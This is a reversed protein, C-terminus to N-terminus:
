RRPQAIGVVNGQPDAFLGITVGPVQTPEQVITGGLSVAKALSAEIDEVEAYVTVMPAGGQTSSMGGHITARENQSDIYTYGEVHEPPAETFTWGFLDHYFERGAEPDSSRIEFHVIPDGM